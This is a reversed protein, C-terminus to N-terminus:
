ESYPVTITIRKRTYTDSESMVWELIDSIPQDSNFIKTEQWMEGVSENGNSMDRIVVVKRNM